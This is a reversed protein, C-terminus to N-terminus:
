FYILPKIDLYKFTLTNVIVFSNSGSFHTYSKSFYFKKRMNSIHKQWLLFKFYIFCLFISWSSRMVPKQMTTDTKLGIQFKIQNTNSCFLSFLHISKVPLLKKIFLVAQTAFSSMFASLQYLIQLILRMIKLLVAHILLKIFVFYCEKPLTLKPLHKRWKHKQYIVTQFLSDKSKVFWFCSNFM